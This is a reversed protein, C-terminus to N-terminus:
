MMMLRSSGILFHARLHWKERAQRYSRRCQAGHERTPNFALFIRYLAEKRAFAMMAIEGTLTGAEVRRFMAMDIDYQAQRIEDEILAKAASAGQGVSIRGYDADNM